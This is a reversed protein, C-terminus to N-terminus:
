LEGDRLAGGPQAQRGRGGLDTAHGREHRCPGKRKCLPARVSAAPPFYPRPLLHRPLGDPQRILSTHCAAPASWAIATVPETHRLFQRVREGSNADWLNVVLDNGGSLLWKDDLSWAVYSVCDAWCVM